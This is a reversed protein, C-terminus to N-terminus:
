AGATASRPAPLASPGAALRRALEAAERFRAKAADRRALARRPRASRSCRTAARLRRRRGAGLALRFLRLSEEYAFSAGTAPEVPTSWRRGAGRRWGRLSAGAGGAAPQPRGRLGGRVGRRRARSTAADRAPLADYAVRPDPCASGLAQSARVPGVVRARRPRTSCTWSSTALLRRVAARAPRCRVGPRPRVGAALVDGARDGLGTLRRGIVERLEDPLGFGWARAGARRKSPTRPSSCGCSSAPSSRTARRDRRARATGARGPASGAMTAIGPM